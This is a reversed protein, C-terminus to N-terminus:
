TVILRFALKQDIPIRGLIEQSDIRSLRDRLHKPLYIMQNSFVHNIFRSRKRDPSTSVVDAFYEVCPDTKDNFHVDSLLPYLHFVPLLFHTRGASEASTIRRLCRRM